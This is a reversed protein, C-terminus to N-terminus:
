AATLRMRTYYAEGAHKDAAYLVARIYRTRDKIRNWNDALKCVLTALTWRDIRSYAALLEDRTVNRHTGITYTRRTSAADASIVEAVADVAAQADAAPRLQQIDQATQEM